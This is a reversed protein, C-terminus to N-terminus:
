KRKNNSLEIWFIVIPLALAVITSFAVLVRGVVLSTNM